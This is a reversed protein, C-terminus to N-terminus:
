WPWAICLTDMHFMVVSPQTICCWYAGSGATCSSNVFAMCQVACYPGLRLSILCLCSYISAPRHLSVTLQHIVVAILEHIVVAYRSSTAGDMSLLQATCGMSNIFFRVLGALHKELLARFGKTGHSNCLPRNPFLREGQGAEM